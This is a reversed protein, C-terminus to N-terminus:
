VEDDEQDYCEEDDWDKWEIEVYEPCLCGEVQCEAREDVGADYRHDEASHQCACGIFPVERDKPDQSLWQDYNTIM